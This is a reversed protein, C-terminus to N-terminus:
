EAHPTGWTRLKRFMRTGWIGWRRVTKLVGHRFAWAAAVSVMVAIVINAAMKWPYLHMYGGIAGFDYCRFPWGAVEVGDTRYAGRTLLFPVINALAM